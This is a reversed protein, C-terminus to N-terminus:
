FGKAQSAFIYLNRFIQMYGARLLLQHSAGSQPFKALSTYCNVSICKNMGKSIINDIERCLVDVM